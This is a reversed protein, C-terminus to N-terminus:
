DSDQRRLRVRTIKRGQMEEAVLRLKGFTLTEGQEPVTGSQALFLGAVTTVEDNAIVIDHDEALETLTVEGDLLLSGDPLKRIWDPSPRAEDDILDEVLDDMTVIGLTGGFEDVVLAAHVRQKKFLAMLEIASMTAAVRPLPRVIRELSTLGGGLRARVFDKVHLVGAIDDLSTRYVPYRAQTSTAILGSVDDPAADLAVAQMRARSTMLEEATRDEMEFINDILRRQAADLQGSEAVEETAIELEKSTYLMATKDPDPIGLLRMLAFAIQNLVFVMPRFVFGFVRMVPNITVSVAEPVQLALAKPIMEGFVVHLYTIGGLAIVFGVAHSQEYTLGADELPGYLWAAVAPEGYMGLGISALTIGLQAIAIYADKGADRDFVRLLWRAAGSGDRAMAEIRARRAGVLAFEAAVFVGNAVILAAIVAIPFLVASM